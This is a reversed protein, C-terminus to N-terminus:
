GKRALPQGCCSIPETCECAGKKGCPTVVNVELGCDERMYTEGAQMEHCIAM